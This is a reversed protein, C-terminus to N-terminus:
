GAFPIIRAPMRAELHLEERLAQEIGAADLGQQALQQERTAHAVLEDAVGLRRLRLKLGLDLITEGLAAGFGGPLAHDEVSIITDHDRALRRLMEADVPKAFRANVLTVAAGDAGLADIAEWVRNCLAGYNWVMLRPQGMAPTGRRILEAKGLSIPEPRDLGWTLTPAVEKPYRILYAAAREASEGHAYAWRVMDKLEAGDKPAMLVTGPLVRSWGIDYLGQHTEGDDGVLGGRDLTVLIGLDRQVVLEQFLQDYGRQAFTSYHCLVPRQGGIALGEAFGFSHQECIGVDYMRDPHVQGFTRLGTGSPMAATIAVLRPDREALELLVECLIQSYAPGTPAKAPFAGTEVDFGKGSHYLLPDGEAPSWGGGKKTHVHLLVPHPLDRVARLLREVEARDHGDIPGFYRFGLDEFIFGPNILKHIAHDASLAMRKVGLRKVLRVFRDRMLNYFRGSRVRDLYRHLSGVPPDIFNGNDNLVVILPTKRDGANILGEYAMGGTLAGDGVVVVTRSNRGARRDAEALGAGTSIATSSHGVKALDYPSERPDPFGSIGGRQRNSAFRDARGTLLKHPYAQHGVDWLLRDKAFDFVRHLAITLEVTGLNSALHGGGNSVVERIRYRVEEALQSLVADDMADLQRPGTLADLLPSPRM